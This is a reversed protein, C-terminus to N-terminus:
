PSCGYVVVAGEPVYQWSGPIGFAVLPGSRAVCQGVILPGGGGADFLPLTQQLWTNGALAYLFAYGSGYGPTDGVVIAGPTVAVSSGFSGTTPNPVIDIGADQATPQLTWTTGSRTYVYGGTSAALVVTDGAIGVSFAFHPDNSAGLSAPALMTQETWTTGSRVFVDAWRASQGQTNSTQVGVVATNGDLAVVQGVNADPVGDTSTLTAQQTWSSGSLTYVVAESGSGWGVVATTGQIAVAPPEANSTSPPKLTSDYFWSSGVQNYAAVVPTSGSVGGIMANSGDLALRQGFQTIGSQPYLSTQFTWSAGQQTFVYATGPHTSTGDGSAGVLLTTGSLAVSDGFGNVNPDNTAGGLIVTPGSCGFCVGETCPSAASCVACTNGGAGCVGAADPAPVCAGDSACCGACTSAGCTAAEPSADSADSSPGADSSTGPGDPASDPTSGPADATADASELVGDQIGLITSCATVSAV